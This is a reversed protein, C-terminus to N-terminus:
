FFLLFTTPLGNFAKLFSLTQDKLTNKLQGTGMAGYKNMTMIQYSQALMAGTQVAGNLVTPEFVTVGAARHFYQSWDTALQVMLYKPFHDLDQFLGRPISLRAIDAASSLEIWEYHATYHADPLFLGVVQRAKCSEPTCERFQVDPFLVKQMSALQFQPNQFVTMPKKIQVRITQFAFGNSNTEQFKKSLNVRPAMHKEQWEVLAGHFAYADKIRPATSFRTTLQSYGNDQAQLFQLPVISLFVSLLVPNWLSHHCSLSLNKTM